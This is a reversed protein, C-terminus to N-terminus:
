EDKSLLRCLSTLSWLVDVLEDYLASDSIDRGRLRHMIAVTLEATEELWLDKARALDVETYVDMRALTEVVRRMAEFEQETCAM